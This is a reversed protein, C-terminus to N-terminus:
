AFTHTLIICLERLQKHRQATSDFVRFSLAHVRSWLHNETKGPTSTDSPDNDHTALVSLGTSALCNMTESLDRRWFLPGMNRQTSADPLCHMCECFEGSLDISAAFAYTKSYNIPHWETPRRM